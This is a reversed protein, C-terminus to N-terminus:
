NKVIIKPVKRFHLTILTDDRTPQFNIIEGYENALTISISKIKSGNVKYYHLRDIAPHIFIKPIVYNTIRNKPASNRNFSENSDNLYPSLDLIKLIPVRASGVVSDNVINCYVYVRKIFKSFSCLYTTLYGRNELTPPITTTCGLLARLKESLQSSVFSDAYEPQSVLNIKEGITTNLYIRLKRSTNEYTLEFTFDSPELLNPFYLTEFNAFAELALVERWPLKEQQFEFRRPPTSSFQNYMIIDADTLETIKYNDSFQKVDYEERLRVEVERAAENENSDLFRNLDQILIHREKLFKYSDITAKIERKRENIVLNVVASQFKSNIADCYAQPDYYGANIKIRRHVTELEPRHEVDELQPYPNLLDSSYLITTMDETINYIVNPIQIDDLAVEWDYHPDTFDLPAPLQNTFQGPKNNGFGYESNPASILHLYFNNVDTLDKQWAM